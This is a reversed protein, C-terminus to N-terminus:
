LQGNPKCGAIRGFRQEEPIILCGGEHSDGLVVCKGQWWLWATLAAVIADLEDASPPLRHIREKINAIYRQLIALREMRGTTRAKPALREGSLVVFAAHPYVEILWRKNEDTRKGSAICYGYRMLAKYLAWGTVILQRFSPFTTPTTPFCRIGFQSVLQRECPRLGNAVWKCGEFASEFPLSHADKKLPQPADIAVVCPNYQLIFKVSEKLGRIRGSSQLSADAGHLAIVATFFWGQSSAPVDVGIFTQKGEKNM